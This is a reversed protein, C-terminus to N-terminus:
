IHKNNEILKIFDDDLVLDQVEIYIDIVEEDINKYKLFYDYNFWTEPNVNYFKMYNAFENILKIMEDIELNYYEKNYNEKLVVPKKKYKKKTVKIKEIKKIYKNIKTIDLRNTYIEINDIKKYLLTDPFKNIVNQKHNYKCLHERMLNYTKLKKNCAECNFSYKKLDISM